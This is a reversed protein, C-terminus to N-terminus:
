LSIDECMFVKILFPMFSISVGDDRHLQKVQARLAKLEDMEVEDCYVLHPIQLSATMSQYMLRQVGAHAGHTSASTSPPPWLCTIPSMLLAGTAHFLAPHTSKTHTNARLYLPLVGVFCSCRCCYTRNYYVHTLTDCLGRCVVESQSKEARLKLSRSPYPRLPHRSNRSM